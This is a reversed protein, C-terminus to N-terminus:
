TTGREGEVTFDLGGWWRNHAIERVTVRHRGAELPTVAVAIPVEALERTTHQGSPGALVLEFPPVLGADVVSKPSTRVAVTLPYAEFARPVQTVDLPAIDIAEAAFDDPFMEEAGTAPQLSPAPM